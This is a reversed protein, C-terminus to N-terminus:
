CMCCGHCRKYWCASSIEIYIRVLSETKNASFLFPFRKNYKQMSPLLKCISIFGAHRCFVLCTNFDLHCCESFLPWSSFTVSCFSPSSPFKLSFVVFFKFVANTEFPRCLYWKLIMSQFYEGFCLKWRVIHANKNKGNDLFIRTGINPLLKSVLFRLHQNIFINGQMWSSSSVIARPSYKIRGDPM